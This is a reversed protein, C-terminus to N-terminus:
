KKAYSGFKFHACVFFAEIQHTIQKEMALLDFRTYM